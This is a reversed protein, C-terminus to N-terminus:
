SNIKAVIKAYLMHLDKLEWKSFNHAPFFTKLKKLIDQKEKWQKSIEDCYDQLYIDKIASTLIDGAKINGNKEFYNAINNLAILEKKM